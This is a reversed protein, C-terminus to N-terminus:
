GQRRFQQFRGPRVRHVDGGVEPEQDLFLAGVQM